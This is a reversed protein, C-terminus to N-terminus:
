ARELLDWRNGWPDRWVAVSGYVERRTAEEFVVGAAEMRARVADFGQCELFFGVRGGHQNGVAAEQEAGEARALVLGSGGQPAVVVWRKRGQDLDEVLLWGLVDVFFAIGRDYDDVLLSVLGLRM